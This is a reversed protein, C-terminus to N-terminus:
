SLYQRHGPHICPTYRRTQSLPAATIHLARQVLQQARKISFSSQLVSIRQQAPLRPNIEPPRGLSLKSVCVCRAPNSSARAYCRLQNALLRLVYIQRLVYTYAHRCASTPLVRARRQHVVGTREKLDSRLAQCRRYRICCWVILYHRVKPYRSLRHQSPAPWFPCFPVAWTSTQVRGAEDVKTGQLPAQPSCMSYMHLKDSESCSCCHKAAATVSSCRLLRLATAEDRRSSLLSVSASCASLSYKPRRPRSCCNCPVAQAPLGELM